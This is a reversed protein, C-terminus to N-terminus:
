NVTTNSCECWDCVMVNATSESVTWVLLTCTAWDRSVQSTLNSDRIKKGVLKSVVLTSVFSTFVESTEDRVSVGKDGWCTFLKGHIRCFKIVVSRICDTM